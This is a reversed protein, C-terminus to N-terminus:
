RIFNLILALINGIIIIASIFEGIIMPVNEEYNKRKSEVFIFIIIAIVLRLINNQVFLFNLISLILTLM